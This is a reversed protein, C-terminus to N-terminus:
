DEYYVESREVEREAMHRMTADLLSRLDKGKFVYARFFPFILFVAYVILPWQVWWPYVYGSRYRLFQNIGALIGGALLYVIVYIWFRFKLEVIRLAEGIDLKPHTKNMSPMRETRAKRPKPEQRPQALEAPAVVEQKSLIREDEEEGEWDLEEPLEDESDDQESDDGFIFPGQLDADDDDRKSLM